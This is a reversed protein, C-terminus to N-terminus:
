ELNGADSNQMLEAGSFMERFVAVIEYKRSVCHARGADEQTDLSTGDEEQASTSVRCYIIARNTTDKARAVM